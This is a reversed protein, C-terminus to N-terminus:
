GLGLDRVISAQRTIRSSDGPSYKLVIESLAKWVADEDVRGGRIFRDPVQQVYSAVLDRIRLGPRPERTGTRAVFRSPPSPLGLNQTLRKFVERRQGAPVYRVVALQVAYALMSIAVQTLMSIVIAVPWGAGGLRWVAGLRCSPRVVLKVIVTGVPRHM